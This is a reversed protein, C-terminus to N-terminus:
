DHGSSSDKHTEPGAQIRGAIEQSSPNVLLEVGMEKYRKFGALQDSNGILIIRTSILTLGILFELSEQSITTTSLCCVVVTFDQNQLQEFADSLRDTRYVVDGSTCTIEDCVNGPLYIALVPM